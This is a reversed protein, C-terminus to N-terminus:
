IEPNYEEISVLDGVDPHDSDANPFMYLTNEFLDTSLSGSFGAIHHLALNENEKKTTNRGLSLDGYLKYDLELTEKNDYFDISTKEGKEKVLENILQTIEDKLSASELKIPELLVYLNQGKDFRKNTLTYIIEYSIASKLKNAKIETNEQSSDTSKDVKATSHTIPANSSCGIIIYTLFLFITFQVIKTTM